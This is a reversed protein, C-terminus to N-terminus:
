ETHRSSSALKYGNRSTSSSPKNSVLLVCIWDCSDLWLVFSWHSTHGQDLFQDQSLTCKQIPLVSGWLRAGRRKQVAASAAHSLVNSLHPSQLPRPAPEISSTGSGSGGCWTRSYWYTCRLLGGLQRTRTLPADSVLVLNGGREALQPQGDISGL